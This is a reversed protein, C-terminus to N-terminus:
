KKSLYAEDIKKSINKVADATSQPLLEILTKDDITDDRIYDGILTKSFGSEHGYWVMAGTKDFATVSITTWTKVSEWDDGKPHDINKFLLGHGAGIILVGDYKSGVVFDKPRSFGSIYNGIIYNYGKPTNGNSEEKPFKKYYGGANRSLWSRLSPRSATVFFGVFTPKQTM